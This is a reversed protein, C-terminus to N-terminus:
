RCYKLTKVIYSRASELYEASCSSFLVVRSRHPDRATHLCVRCYILLFFYNRLPLDFLQLMYHGNLGNLTM